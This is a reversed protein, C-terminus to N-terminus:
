ISTNVDPYFHSALLPNWTMGMMRVGRPIIHGAPCAKQARVFSLALCFSLSAGRHNAGIHKSALNM